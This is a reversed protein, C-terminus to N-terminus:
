CLTITVGVVWTGDTSNQHSNGQIVGNANISSGYADINSRSVVYKTSPDSSDVANVNALTVTFSVYDGARFPIGMFGSVDNYDGGYLNGSSPDTMSVDFFREEHNKIISALVNGLPVDLLEAKNLATGGNALTDIPTNSSSDQVLANMIPWAVQTNDGDIYQTLEQDNVIPGVARYSGFVAAAVLGVVYDGLSESLPVLNDGTASSTLCAQLANVFDGSLTSDYALTIQDADAIGGSVNPNTQKYKFVSRLLGASLDMAFNLGEDVYQNPNTSTEIQAPLSSYDVTANVNFNWFANSSSNYVAPASM